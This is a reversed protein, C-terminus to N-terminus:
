VSPAARAIALFEAASLSAGGVLVGDVDPLRLIGAASDPKVSGGYLIRAGATGTGDLVDRLHGHMTSIDDLSASRGTGIAWVPEYAVVVSEASADQPLSDRLQRAVVRAANGSDRQAATEGVCLIVTLGVALATAVRARVDHDSEGYAARRESHGLIVQTCGIDHLMAASIDGTHAGARAAHCNQGGLQLRSGALCAAVPALLTAPPFISMDIGSREGMFRVLANALAVGEDRLLNMKWNGAVLPRDPM